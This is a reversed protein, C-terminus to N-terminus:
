LSIYIDIEKKKLMDDIGERAFCADMVKLEMGTLLIEQPDM